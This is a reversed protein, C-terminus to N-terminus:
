FVPILIRMDTEINEANISNIERMDSINTNFKKAIDWVKEGADAYYIILSCDRNDKQKKNGCCIETLVSINKAEKLSLNVRYEVRYEVNNESLITYSVSIPEFVSFCDLTGSLKLDMEKKYEFEQKKELYNVKGNDNATLICITINGKVTILNDSANCGTIETESWSDIISKIDADKFELDTKYMYTDSLHGLVKEIKCDTKEMSIDYETSFADVIVPIQEDCYSECNIEIKANMTMARAEGDGKKPTIELYCLKAKATSVCNETVGNMEIIQAFPIISKFTYCNRNNRYLVNIALNGKVTVKDKLQKVESVTPFASYKIICEVPPQGQSLILDEELLFYKENVGVSNIAPVERRQFQIFDDSVDAIIDVKNRKFIKLQLAINGHLTIKRESVARCNCYETKLATEIRCGSFDENFNFTKSFPFLHEFNQLTGDSDCYIVNVFVHGDVTATQGNISKSTVRGEVTCKLLKNIESYFDPMVLDEDVPIEATGTFAADNISLPQRVTKLEM